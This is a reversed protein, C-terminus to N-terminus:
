RWSELIMRECETWDTRKLLEPLLPKIQKEIEDYCKELKFGLREEWYKRTYEAIAKRLPSIGPTPGYKNYGEDVADKLAAIVRPPPQFDPEGLGLNIVNSGAMDFMRRIGSFVIGDLRDAPKMVNRRKEVVISSKM